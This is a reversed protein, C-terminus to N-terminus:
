DLHNKGYMQLATHSCRDTILIKLVRKSGTGNVMCYAKVIIYHMKKKIKFLFEKLFFYLFFRGCQKLALPIAVAPGIGMIDPPCGKVAFSRLIGLIPLGRRQAESRKMMIVAAAGDSKQSSNGTISM